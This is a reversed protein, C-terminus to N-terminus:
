FERFIASLLFAQLIPSRDINNYGFGMGCNTYAGAPVVLGRQQCPLGMVALISDYAAPLPM